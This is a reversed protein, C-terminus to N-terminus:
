ILIDKGTSYEWNLDKKFHCNVGKTIINKGPTLSLTIAGLFFFILYFKVLRAIKPKRREFRKIKGM